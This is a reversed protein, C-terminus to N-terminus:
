TSYIFFVFYLYLPLSPRTPPGTLWHTGSLRGHIELKLNVQSWLREGRKNWGDTYLTTQNKANFGSNAFNLVTYKKCGSVMFMCHSIHHDVRSSSDRAFRQIKDVSWYFYWRLTPETTMHRNIEMEEEANIGPERWNMGSRFGHKINWCSFAAM